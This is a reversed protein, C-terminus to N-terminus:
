ARRTMSRLETVAVVNVLAEALRAACHTPVERNLATYPFATATVLNLPQDGDACGSQPCFSYLVDLAGAARAPVAMASVGACAIVLLVIRRM